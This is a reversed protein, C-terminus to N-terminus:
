FFPIISDEPQICITDKSPQHDLISQIYLKDSIIYSAGKKLADLIFISGHCKSGQLAVFVDGKKIENSNIRLKDPNNILYDKVRNELKLKM